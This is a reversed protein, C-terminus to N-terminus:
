HTRARPESCCRFGLLDQRTSTRLTVQASCTTKSSPDEASGGKVVHVGPDRADATATWEAANGPM